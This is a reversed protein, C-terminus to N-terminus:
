EGALHLAAFGDSCQANANAGARLLLKMISSHGTQAAACLATGYATGQGAELDTGRRLLKSVAAENGKDAAAWLASPPGQQTHSESM